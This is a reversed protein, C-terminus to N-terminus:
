PDLREDRTNKKRDIRDAAKLRRVIRLSRHVPATYFGNSHVRRISSTLRRYINIIQGSQTSILIKENKSEKKKAL